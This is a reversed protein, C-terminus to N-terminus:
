RKDLMCKINDQGLAKIIFEYEEAVALIFRANDKDTISYLYAESFVPTEPPHEEGYCKFKYGVPVEIFPEGKKFSRM